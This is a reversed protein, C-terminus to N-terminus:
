FKYMHTFIIEKQIKFHESVQQRSGYGSFEFSAFELFANACPGVGLFIPELSAGQSAPEM